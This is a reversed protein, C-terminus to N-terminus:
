EISEFPHSLVISKHDYMYMEKLWHRLSPKQGGKRKSTSGKSTPRKFGDLPRPLARLKEMEPSAGGASSKPM